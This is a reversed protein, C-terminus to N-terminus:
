KQVWNFVITLTDNAKNFDNNLLFTGCSFPTAFHPPKGFAEASSLTNIYFNCAYKKQDQSWIHLGLQSKEAIPWKLKRDYFGVVTQAYLAVFKGFSLHLDVKIYYGLSTYFYKTITNLINDNTSKTMQNSFNYIRWTHQDACNHINIGAPTRLRVAANVTQLNRAKNTVEQKLRENEQQLTAINQRLTEITNEESTIAQLALDM